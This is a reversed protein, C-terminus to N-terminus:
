YRLWIKRCWWAVVGRLDTGWSNHLVNPDHGLMNPTYSIDRFSIPLCPLRSRNTNIQRKGHILKLNEGKEGSPQQDLGRDEDALTPPSPRRIPPKMQLAFIWARRLFRWVKQGPSFWMRNMDDLHIEAPLNCSAESVCRLQQETRGASVLYTQSILYSRCVLRSLPWNKFNPIRDPHAFRMHNGKLRGEALFFFGLWDWDIM